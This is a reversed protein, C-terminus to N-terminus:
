PAYLHQYRRVSPKEGVYIGYGLFAYIKPVFRTALLYRRSGPNTYFLQLQRWSSRFVEPWGYRRVIQKLEQRLNVGHIRIELATLGAGKLLEEWADPLLVEAADSLVGEVFHVYGPPPTRLWTPENLGIRAGSKAVRVYEGLAMAKEAIFVTVSEAIVADFSSDPFPLERADAELFEVRDAVGEREARHRAHELMGSSLDVGVVTCGLRKVLQCATVGVGCGVDLVCMGDKLACLQILEETAELGGLHRTFGIRTQIDFVSAQTM